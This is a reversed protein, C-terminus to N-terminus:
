RVGKYAAIHNPHGSVGYDDFTIIGKIDNKEVYKQTQETVASLPWEQKMGDPLEPVDLVDWKTFGTRRLFIM